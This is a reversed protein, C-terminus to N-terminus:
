SWRGDESMREALVTIFDATKLKASESYRSATSFTDMLDYVADFSITDLRKLSESWSELMEAHSLITQIDRILKTQLEDREEITLLNKSIVAM